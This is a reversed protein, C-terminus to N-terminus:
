NLLDTFTLPHIATPVVRRTGEGEVVDLFEYPLGSRRKQLMQSISENGIGPYKRRFATVDSCKWFAELVPWLYCKLYERDDTLTRLWKGYFPTSM